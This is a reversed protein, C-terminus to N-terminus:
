WLVVQHHQKIHRLEHGFHGVQCRILVHCIYSLWGERVFASDMNRRHPSSGQGVLVNVRYQNSVLHAHDNAFERSSAVQQTFGFFIAQSLDFTFGHCTHEVLDFLQFRLTEGEFCGLSRHCHHELSVLWSIERRKFHDVKRRDHFMTLAPANKCFRGDLHPHLALNEMGRGFPIARDIREIRRQPFCQYVM